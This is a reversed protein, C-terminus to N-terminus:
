PFIFLEGLALESRKHSGFDVILQLVVVLAHHERQPGSFEEVKLIGSFKLICYDTHQKEEGQLKAFRKKSRLCLQRSSLRAFHTSVYMAREAMCLGGVGALVAFWGRGWSIVANGEFAFPPALVEAPRVDGVVGNECDVSGEFDKSDRCSEDVKSGFKGPPPLAPRTPECGDGKARPRSTCFFKCATM